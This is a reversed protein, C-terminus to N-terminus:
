IEYAKRLIDKANRKLGAIYDRDLSTFVYIRLLRRLLVIIALVVVFFYDDIVFRTSNRLRSGSLHKLTCRM